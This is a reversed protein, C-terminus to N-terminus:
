RDTAESHLHQSGRSSGRVSRSVPEAPPRCGDSPRSQPAGVTGALRATAATPCNRLENAPQCIRLEEALRNILPHGPAVARLMRLSEDYHEIRLRHGHQLHAPLAIGYRARDRAIRDPLERIKSIKDAAFILTADGGSTRVQERLLHKRQRYGPISADDSVAQVLGAVEAGFCATLEGISTHSNELVDHLLGAAIVVDRCGADRLLGGVELPHEIFPAQDSDRRQNAHCRAAFKMASRILLSPMRTASRPAHTADDPQRTPTSIRTQGDTSTTPRSAM